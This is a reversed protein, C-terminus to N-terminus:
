LGAGIAQLWSKAMLANGAPTVHVGDLSWYTAERRACAAAFIGDMPVLVAGFERALKRVVDIKPDLERRVRDYEAASPLLFPEILIFRANLTDRSETLIERYVNEYEEAGVGAWWTDNIGIMISIWSPKLDLADEKWRAKLDRVTNGSIGRNLFKVGTEPYAAMFLGSAIMAYGPGLDEGAERNRGADTISDGQFLVVAGNEILPAM